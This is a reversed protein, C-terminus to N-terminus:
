HSPHAITAFYNTGRTELELEPTHHLCQPLVYDHGPACRRSLMDSIVNDVGAVHEAIHPAYEAHAIDLAIERAIIGAGKGRTKLDLSLILASISDSQVRVLVRQGKWRDSWGRLAVLIALAEVVQQAASEGRVVSLIELETDSLPCSFYSVINGDEMLYGGLGWPSADLCMVVKLGHGRFVSLEFTRKLVSSEQQLLAVLWRLTHAVQATWVSSAIPGGKTTSTQAAYLESLFPRMTQVLSAIHTAKGTCQRLDKRHIVNSLLFKECLNLTEQVLSPKIMVEIGTATPAFVASTWTVTQGIQAKELALPLGLASWIALTMAFITRRQKRSGVAVLIPDDVYTSLRCSEAGIVSQTLRAILAIFRAWTLPAGRSGQTTRTFVLVKKRYRVAFFKREKPHNPLIFFADRFDAVMFEVWERYDQVEEVTEQLGPINSLLAMTDSVVDLARPLQTREFKRTAKSVGSRKSDIVMRMKWKGNRMKKIAGIKSLIIKTGLFTEAEELTDFKMAYENPPEVIRRLEKDVEDDQEVGSYNTFDPETRLDSPNVEAYDVDPDYLPFIGRDVIPETIGAPAGEKLWKVPETDPDKAATRWHDLLGVDVLSTQTGPESHFNPLEQNLIEKICKSAHNKIDGSLSTCDTRGIHSLIDEIMEPHHNFMALLAGHIRSGLQNEFSLRSMVPGLLKLGGIPQIVTSNKRQDDFVCPGLVVSNAFWKSQKPASALYATGPKASSSPRGCQSAPKNTDVVRQLLQNTKHLQRVSRLQKKLFSVKSESSKLPATRTSTRVMPSRYKIIRVGQAVPQLYKRKYRTCRNALAVTEEKVAILMGPVTFTQPGDVTRICYSTTNEKGHM